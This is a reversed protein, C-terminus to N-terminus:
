PKLIKQLEALNNLDIKLDIGHTLLSYGNLNKLGSSYNIKLGLVSITLGGAVNYANSCGGRITFAPNLIWEIGFYPLFYSSSYFLHSFPNSTGASYNVGGMINVSHKKYVIEGQLESATMSKLGTNWSRLGIPLNQWSMGTILNENFRKFFSLDFFLGLSRYSGAHTMYPKINMEAITNKNFYKKLGILLGIDAYNFYTINSYDPYQGYESDVMLQQTEPIDNVGSYILKSKVQIQKVTLDPIHFIMSNHAGAYDNRFSIGTWQHDNPEFASQTLYEGGIGLTHASIIYRYPDTENGTFQISALLLQSCIIYAFVMKISFCFNM